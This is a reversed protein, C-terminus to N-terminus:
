ERINTLTKQATESNCDNLILYLSFDYIQLADKETTLLQFSDQNLM